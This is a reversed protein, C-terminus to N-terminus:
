NENSKSLSSIKGDAVSEEFTSSDQRYQVGQWTLGFCIPIWIFIRRLCIHIQQKTCNLLYCELSNNCVKIMAQSVLKPNEFMAIWCPTKGFPVNLAELDVAHLPSLLEDHLEKENKKYIMETKLNTKTHSLTRAPSM